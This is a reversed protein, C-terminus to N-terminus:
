HYLQYCCYAVGVRDISSTNHHDSEDDSFVSDNDSSEENSIEDLDKEIWSSILQSGQKAFFRQQRESTSSAMEAFLQFSLTFFFVVISKYTFKIDFYM